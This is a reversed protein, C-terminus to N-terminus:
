QQKNHTLVLGSGHVAKIYLTGEHPIDASELEADWEAGRYFVRATGNDNWKIVKVPLGIDLGVDPTSAARGSKWRRLMITGAFGTVASLVLQWVLTLGLAAATGGIALAIAIVLLYFTGTAIELGVLVLALLFWYIYIEM